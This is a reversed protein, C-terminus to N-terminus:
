VARCAGDTALPRLGFARLATLAIVVKLHRELAGTGEAPRCEELGNSNPDFVLFLHVGQCFSNSFISAFSVGPGVAVLKELFNPRPLRGPM